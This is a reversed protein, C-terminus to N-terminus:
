LNQVGLHNFVDKHDLGMALGHKRCFDNRKKYLVEL